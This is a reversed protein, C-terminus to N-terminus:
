AMQKILLVAPQDVKDASINREFLPGEIIGMGGLVLLELHVLQWLDNVMVLVPVPLIKVTVVCPFVSLRDSRYLATGFAVNRFFTGARGTLSRLRVQVTVVAFGTLQHALDATCKERGILVTEGFPKREFTGVTRM